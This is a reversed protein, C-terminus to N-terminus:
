KEKAKLSKDKCYGSFYCMRDRRWYCREEETVGCRGQVKFREIEEDTIGRYMIEEM